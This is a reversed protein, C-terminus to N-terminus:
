HSYFYLNEEFKSKRVHDYNGSVTVSVAKCCTAREGIINATVAMGNLVAQGAVAASLVFAVSVALRASYDPGLATM